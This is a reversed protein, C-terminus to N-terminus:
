QKQEVQHFIEKQHCVQLMKSGWGIKFSGKRSPQMNCVDVFRRICCTSTEHNAKVNPCVSLHQQPLSSGEQSSVFGMGLWKQFHNEKEGPPIHSGKRLAILLICNVVKSIPSTQWRYFTIRNLFTAQRNKRRLWCCRASAAQTNFSTADTTLTPLLIYTHFPKISPIHESFYVM